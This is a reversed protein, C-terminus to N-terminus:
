QHIGACVSILVWWSGLVLWVYPIGWCATFCKAPRTIFRSSRELVNVAARSPVNVTNVEPQPAISATLARVVLCVRWPLLHM